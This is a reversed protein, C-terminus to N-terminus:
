AAYERGVTVDLGGLDDHIPGTDALAVTEHREFGFLLRLPQLVFHTNMAITKCKGYIHQTTPGLEGLERGKGQALRWSSM